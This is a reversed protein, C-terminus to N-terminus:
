KRRKLARLWVDRKPVRQGKAKIKDGVVKIIDRTEVHTWGTPYVENATEFVLRQERSRPLNLTPPEPKPAAATPAPAPAIRVDYWFTNNVRDILKSEDFLNLLFYRWAPAPIDAYDATPSRPRGKGLYCGSVMIDYFHNLPASDTGINFPRRGIVRWFAEALPLYDEALWPGHQADDDDPM